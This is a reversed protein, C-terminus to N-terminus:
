LMIIDFELSIIGFLSYLLWEILLILQNLFMIPYHCFMLYTSSLLVKVKINCTQSQMVGNKFFVREM